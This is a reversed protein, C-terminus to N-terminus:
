RRAKRYVNRRRVTYILGLVGLGAGVLCVVLWWQTGHEILADRFFLWLVGFGILWALTGAAVAGVGDEDLPEVDV